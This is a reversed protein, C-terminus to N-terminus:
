SGDTGSAWNKEDWNGEDWILVDDIATSYELIPRVGASTAILLFQMVIAALDDDLDAGLVRLVYTAAGQNDIELTWGGSAFEDASGALVLIAIRYIEEPRGDAKRAAIRARIYRRYVDDDAIAGRPQGVLKGLLDLWVGVATNVNLQVLLGQLTDELLQAPGLMARVFNKINSM